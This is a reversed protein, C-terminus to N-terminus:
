GRLVSSRKSVHKTSMQSSDQSLSTKFWSTTAYTKRYHNRPTKSCSTTPQNNEKPRTLRAISPQAQLPARKVATIRQSLFENQSLHNIPKHESTIRKLYRALQQKVKKMQGHWERQVSSRKPVHKISLHPGNQFLRKSTVPKHSQTEIITANTRTKTRSTTPQSNENPWTM